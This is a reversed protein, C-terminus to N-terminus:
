SSQLAKETLMPEVRFTCNIRFQNTCMYLILNTCNFHQQSETLHMRYLRFNPLLFLFATQATRLIGQLIFGEFAGRAFLYCKSTKGKVETPIIVFNSM